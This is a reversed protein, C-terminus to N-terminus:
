LVKTQKGYGLAELAQWVHYCISQEHGFKSLLHIIALGGGAQLIDDHLESSAALAALASCGCQQICRSHLHRMMAQVVLAAGGHEVILTRNYTNLALNQLAECGSRQMHFNTPFHMMADLIRDIGGIQGLIVSTEDDWSEVWLKQCGMEQIFEAHPYSKMAHLVDVLEATSGVIEGKYIEVIPSANGESQQPEVTIPGVNQLQNTRAFPSDIALHANEFTDMEQTLHRPLPHCLLCRGRYAENQVSLPVKESRLSLPDRQFSHTQIGCDACRGDRERILRLSGSPSNERYISHQPSFYSRTAPDPLSCSSMSDDDINPIVVPNSMAVVVTAQDL